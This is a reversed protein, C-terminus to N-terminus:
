TIEVWEPPDKPCRETPFALKNMHSETVGGCCGCLTCKKGNFKDCAKCLEFRKQIEEWSLLTRGTRDKYANDTYLRWLADMYMQTRAWLAKTM